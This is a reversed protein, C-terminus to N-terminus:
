YSPIEAPGCRRERGAKINSVPRYNNQINKDLTPKKLLPIVHALKFGDPVSGEHLSYNVLCTITTILVDLCDKLIHTPLPDLDCTKNKSARILKEINQANVPAFSSFAPAEYPPKVPTYGTRANLSTRIAEINDHVFKSFNDALDPISTYDPLTPEVKKHMIKNITNWLQKPNKSKEQILNNYFEKKSQNLLANYRNVAKRYRSRNHATKSTKWARELRRKTQKATLVNLNFWECKPKPCKRNKLPAHKDILESLVKDFQSALASASTAQTLILESSRIDNKFTEINIKHYQRYSIIKSQPKPMEFNLVGFTAFHDSIGDAVSTGLLYQCEKKAIILDLINGHIHTPQTIYQQFGLIDLLDLFPMPVSSFPINFDGLFITDDRAANLSENLEEFQLLFTDRSSGPPRYITIINLSTRDIKINAGIAEFSSFMPLPITTAKLDKHAAYGVGGGRRKSRPQHAFDFNVPTIESM